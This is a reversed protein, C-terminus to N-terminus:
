VEEPSLWRVRIVRWQRGYVRNSINHLNPTQTWPPDAIYDEPKDNPNPYNVFDPMRQVIVEVWARAELRGSVPNVVDGYARIKYTDSRTVLHPALVQLVDAQTLYGPAGAAIDGTLNDPYPFSWDMGAASGLTTANDLQQRTLQATFYAKNISTRDIAAQLAGKKGTDDNALRRNIFDSLSVFPGRTKVERVIERALSDIEQDSLSRYGRWTTQADAGGNVLTFRPMPALSSSAMSIGLSQADYTPISQTNKLSGLVAKWAEVSTSNVNFAGEILLNAAVRRFPPIPNNKEDLPNTLTTLLDQRRGGVNLLFKMRPNPLPKSIKPNLWDPLRGNVTDEDPRPTISSFYYRDFSQNAQYSVDIYKNETYSTLPTWPSAWSNGLTYGRWGTVLPAEGQVPYHQLQGISLLPATPVEFLPVFNRSGGALPQITGIVQDGSTISRAKIQYQPLTSPYGQGPNQIIVARPDCQAIMPVPFGSVDAESKMQWDIVGFFRKADATLDTGIKLVASMGPLPKGAADMGAYARVRHTFEPRHGTRV